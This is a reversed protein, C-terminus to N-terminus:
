NNVQTLRIRMGDQCHVACYTALTECVIRPIWGQQRWPATTERCMIVTRTTGVVHLSAFSLYIIVSLSNQSRLYLYFFLHFFWQTCFTPKALIEIIKVLEKKISLSALLCCYYLRLRLLCACAPTNPLIAHLHFGASVFFFVCLKSFAILAVRRRGM